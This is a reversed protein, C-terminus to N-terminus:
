PRCIRRRTRTPQENTQNQEITPTPEIQEVAVFFKNDAAPNWDTEKNRRANGALSDALENDIDGDHGKVWYVGVSRTKRHLKLLRMIEEIMPRNKVPQGTSTVWGHALWGAAWRQCVNVAYKSDSWINIPEARGPYLFQLSHLISALEMANTSVRDYWGHRTAVKPGL